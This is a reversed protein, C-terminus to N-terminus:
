DAAFIVPFRPHEFPKGVELGIGDTNPNTAGNYCVDAPFYILSYAWRAENTVNENAGHVMLGHHVTTDGARLDLPPSPRYRDLLKPYQEVLDGGGHLTRGLPGERHSGSLFRLTGSKSEMDHLAIWFGIMGVRDHCDNPFDQHWATAENGGLTLAPIKGLVADIAFRISVERELLAAANEGIRSSFAVRRFPELRDDRALYRKEQWKTTSTFSASRVYSLMETVVSPDIFERLLVWGDRQFDAIEDATVSRICGDAATDNM